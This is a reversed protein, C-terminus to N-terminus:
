TSEGDITLGREALEGFAERSRDAKVPQEHVWAVLRRIGEDLPVQPAYGLLAEAAAIDAEM